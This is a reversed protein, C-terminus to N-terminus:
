GNSMAFSSAENQPYNKLAQEFSKLAEEYCDLHTLVRGLYIWARCSRPQIELAHEFSALAECYRGLSLLKQGRNFWFDYDDFYSNLYNNM